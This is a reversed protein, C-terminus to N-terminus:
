ILLYHEDSFKSNTTYMRGENTLETDNPSHNKDMKYIQQMYYETGDVEVVYKFTEKTM